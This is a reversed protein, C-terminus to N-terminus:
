RNQESQMTASCITSNFFPVTYPSPLPDGIYPVPTVPQYPFSQIPFTIPNRLSNLTGMLAQITATLQEIIAKQTEVVFRLEQVDVSKKAM